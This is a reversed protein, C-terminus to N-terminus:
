SPPASTRWCWYVFTRYPLVFEDPFGAVIARVEHVIADRAEADMAAIYSVSTVRDILTAEDLLQEYRLETRRLPTFAGARAVREDWQEHGADFSPIHGRNWQMVESM